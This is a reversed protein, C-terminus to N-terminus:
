KFFNLKKGIKDKNSLIPRKIPWNISVSDDDWSLTTESTKHRFKSCKYNVTCNKSLCLFGHAFGEHVVIANNQNSSLETKYFKGYTPSNKRIDVVVDFIKGNICRILKKEEFPKTQYHLGRIAGKPITHSVNIQCWDINLNNKKFEEDCFIRSFSGRDDVYINMDLHYVGEINTLKNQISSM